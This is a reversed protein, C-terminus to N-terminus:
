IHPCPYKRCSYSACSYKFLCTSLSTMFPQRNSFLEGHCELMMNYKNLAINQPQL